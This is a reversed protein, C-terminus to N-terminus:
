YHSIIIKQSGDNTIFIKLKSRIMILVFEMLKEDADVTTELGGCLWLIGM